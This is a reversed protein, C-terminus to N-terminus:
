ILDRCTTPHFLKISLMRGDAQDYGSKNSRIGLHIMICHKCNADIDGSESIGGIRRLLCRAAMEFVLSFNTSLPDGLFSRGSSGDAFHRIQAHLTGLYGSGLGRPFEMKAHLDLDAWTPM